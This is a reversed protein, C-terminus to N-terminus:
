LIWEPGLTMTLAAPGLQALDGVGDIAIVPRATEILADVGLVLSFWTALYLRGQAGAGAALWTTRESRSAIDPGTGRAAIHELSLVLCPAIEWAASRLARCARLTGTLRDVDAGYSPSQEMALSQRRWAGGGLLFRWSEFSVGGAFALGWSPQSLPGFSLAALPVQALARWRREVTAIPRNEIQITPAASETADVAPKTEAPKQVAAEVPVSASQGTSGSADGRQQVGLDSESLPEESRML